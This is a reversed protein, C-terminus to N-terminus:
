QGRDRSYDLLWRLAARDEDTGSVIENIAHEAQRALPDTVARMRDRVAAGSALERVFRLDGETLRPNGLIAELRRRDEAEAVEALVSFLITKKGERLDSGAPKGIDETDGFLGLEDDRIQFLLGLSEGCAELTKQLPEASGAM